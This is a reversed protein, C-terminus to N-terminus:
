KILPEIVIKQNVVSERVWRNGRKYAIGPLNDILFVGEYITAHLTHLITATAEDIVKFGYDTPTVKVESIDKTAVAPTPPASPVSSTTSVKPPAPPTIVEVPTPVPTKEIVKASITTKYSYNLEAVSEFAARLAAHYGKKFDKLKSSGVASRFVLENKCNRFQVELKTNLFGKIKEVNVDLLLCRNNVLDEPYNSSTDLVLFGNKKLLFKTLSNVQYQDASKLFDFRDPVSVYKYTNIDNQSFVANQTLILFFIFLTSFYKM